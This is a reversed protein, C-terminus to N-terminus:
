VGRYGDASRHLQPYLEDCTETVDLELLDLRGNLTNHGAHVTGTPDTIGWRVPGHPLAALLQTALVALAAPISEATGTQEQTTIVYM